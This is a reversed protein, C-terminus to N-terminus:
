EANTLLTQVRYGQVQQIQTYGFWLVAGDHPRRSWGLASKTSLDPGCGLCATSAQFGLSVSDTGAVLCIQTGWVDHLFAWNASNLPLKNLHCNKASTKRVQQKAPPSPRTNVSPFYDLLNLVFFYLAHNRRTSAKVFWLWLSGCHHSIHTLFICRSNSIQPSAPTQIHEMNSHLCQPLEHEISPLEM